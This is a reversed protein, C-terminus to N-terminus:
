GGDLVDGLPVAVQRLDPPEDIGFAVPNPSGHTLSLLPTETPPGPPPSTVVFLASPILVTWEWWHIELYKRQRGTSSRVSCGQKACVRDRSQTVKARRERQTYHHEGEGPDGYLSLIVM